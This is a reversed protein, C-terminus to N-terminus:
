LKTLDNLQIFLAEQIGVIDAKNFRVVAAIMEKRISWANKGETEENGAFRINYSMVRIMEKDSNLISVGPTLSILFTLFFIRFLIM